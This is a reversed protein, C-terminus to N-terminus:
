VRLHKSFFEKIDIIEFISINKNKISKNIHQSIFNYDVKFILKLCFFHLRLNSEKEKLIVIKEKIIVISYSSNFLIDFNDFSFFDIIKSKFHHQNNTCVFM